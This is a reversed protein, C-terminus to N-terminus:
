PGVVPGPYKVGAVRGWTTLMRIVVPDVGATDWGFWDRLCEILTSACLPGALLQMALSSATINMQVAVKGPEAAAPVRMLFRALGHTQGHAVGSLVRHYTAGLGATASACQDILQMASAPRRGLYGARFPTPKIYALGNRGGERMIAATRAAHRAILRATDPSGFEGLMRTDEWLGELDRNMNRRIRELPDIGAAALHCAVSAAETAGRTLSFLSPVGHQDRLVLGAAGLHDACSWTTMLVTAFVDRCPHASWEGAYPEGEAERDAPSGDAPRQCANVLDRLATAFHELSRGLDAFADSSM